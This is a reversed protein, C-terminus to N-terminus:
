QSRIARAACCSAGVGRAAGSRAGRRRDSERRGAQRAAPHRRRHRAGKRPRAAAAALMADAGFGSFLPMAIAGIKTTALLAIMAEPVNPMYLAVVDGRGLGLSRLAGPRGACRPMSIAIATNRRRATRAKGSSRPDQGLDAHRALSRAREARCQDNGGICWRRWRHAARITSCRARVASLLSLRYAEAARQLVMRARADARELLDEYSAVGLSRM